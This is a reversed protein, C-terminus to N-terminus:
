ITKRKHHNTALKKNPLPTSDVRYIETSVGSSELQTFWKPKRGVGTWEQGEPGRFRVIGSKSREYKVPSARLPDTALDQENGANSKPASWHPVHYIANLSKGAIQNAEEVTTTIIVVVGRNFRVHTAIKQTLDEFQWAEDIISIGRLEPAPLRSQATRATLGDIYQIQTNAEILQNALVSKGVGSPGVLAIVGGGVAVSEEIAQTLADILNKRELLQRSKDQNSSTQIAQQM